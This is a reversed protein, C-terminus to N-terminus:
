YFLLYPGAALSIGVITLIIPVTLARKEKHRKIIILIEVLALIAGGGPVVLFVFHLIMWSIAESM